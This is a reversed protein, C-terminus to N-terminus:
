KMKPSLSNNVTTPPKIKENSLWKSERHSNSYCWNANHFHQSGDDSFSSKGIFFSIITITIYKARAIKKKEGEGITNLATELNTHKLMCYMM